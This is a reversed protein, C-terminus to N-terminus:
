GPRSRPHIKVCLRPAARQRDLSDKRGLLVDMQKKNQKNTKLRWVTNQNREGFETRRVGFSAAVKEGSRRPFIKSGSKYINNKADVTVPVYEGETRTSQSSVQSSIKFEHNIKRKEKKRMVNLRAGPM